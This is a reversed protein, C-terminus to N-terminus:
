QETDFTGTPAATPADLQSRTVTSTVLIRGCLVQLLNM